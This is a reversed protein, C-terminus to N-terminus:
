RASVALGVTKVLVGELEGRTGGEVFERIGFAGRGVIERVEEITTGTERAVAYVATGELRKRLMGDSIGRVGGVIQMWTHGEREVCRRWVYDKLEDKEGDSAEGFDVAELAVAAHRALKRSAVPARDIYARVLDSLTLLSDLADPDAMIHQTSALHWTGRIYHVDEELQTQGEQTDPYESEEDDEREMEVAMQALRAISSLVRTNQLSGPHGPTAVDKVHRTLVSAGELMRGEALWHMWALNSVGAREERFYTSLLRSVSEDRVDVTTQLGDEGGARGKLLLKIEGREELWKLGYFGFEDGYNALAEAFYADFDDSEKKLSMITGFDRYKEALVLAVDPLMFTRLRDLVKTRARGWLSTGDEAVRRKKMAPSQAHAGARNGTTDSLATRTCALLEDSVIEAAMKVKPMENLRAGGKMELVAEVLIELTARAHNDCAWQRFGRLAFRDRELQSVAAARTERASAVVCIAAECALLTVNRVARLWVMGGPATQEEMATQGRRNVDALSDRLAPLFADFYTPYRYLFSAEDGGIENTRVLSGARHLARSIVSGGECLEAEVERLDEPLISGAMSMSRAHAESGVVSTTGANRFTNSTAGSVHRNEVDRVARAVALKEGHCLVEHRVNPSLADWLRDDTTTHADERLGNFVEADGLLRIFSNYETQRRELEDDVLLSVPSNAPNSRSSIIFQSVDRVVDALFNTSPAGNVYTARYLGRLSARVAGTQGAKYQLQARWLMANVDPEETQVVPAVVEDGLMSMPAPVGSSVLNVADACLCAVLGGSVADSSHAASAHSADLVHLVQVGESLVVSGHVQDTEVIGRAVSVWSLRRTGPVHVYALGESLTMCVDVDRRGNTLDSLNIQVAVAEPVDHVGFGVIRFMPVEDVIEELLCILTDEASVSARVVRRREAAVRPVAVEFVDVSWLLNDAGWCEAAGGERVVCAALQGSLAGAGVIRHRGAGAEWDAADPRADASISRLASYFMQGFSIGSRKGSEAVSAERVLHHVQPASADVRVYAASGRAGFVFLADHDGAAARVVECARVHHHADDARASAALARAVRVERPRPPSRASPNVGAYIRLPGAADLAAVSLLSNAGRWAALRPATLGAGAVPPPLPLALADRASSGPAGAVAFLHARTSGASAVVAYGAVGAASLADATASSASLLLDEVDAPYPAIAITGDM